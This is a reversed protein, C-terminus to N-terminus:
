TSSCASWACFHSAFPISLLLPLSTFISSEEEEKLLRAGVEAFITKHRTSTSHWSEVSLIKEGLSHACVCVRLVRSELESILGFLLHKHSLLSAGGAREEVRLRFSTDKDSCNAM